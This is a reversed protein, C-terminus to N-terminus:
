LLNRLGLGEAKFGSRGMVSAVALQELSSYDARKSGSRCRERDEPEPGSCSSMSANCFDVHKPTRGASPLIELM